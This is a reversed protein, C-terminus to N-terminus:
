GLSSRQQCCGVVLTDHGSRAGVEQVLASLASQPLGSENRCTSLQLWSERGQDVVPIWLGSAERYMARMRPLWHSSQLFHTLRSSNGKPCFADAACLSMSGARRDCAASASAWLDTSSANANQVALDSVPMGTTGNAAGLTAAASSITLFYPTPGGILTSAEDYSSTVITSELSHNQKYAYKELRLCAASRNRASHADSGDDTVSSFQAIGPTLYLWGTPNDVQYANLAGNHTSFNVGTAGNCMLLLVDDFIVRPPYWDRVLTQAFDGRTVYAHACYNSSRRPDIVDLSAFSDLRQLAEYVSTSKLPSTAVFTDASSAACGESASMQDGEEDSYTQCEGLKLL